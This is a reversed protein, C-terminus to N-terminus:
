WICHVVAGSNESTGRLGGPLHLLESAHSKCGQSKWSHAGQHQTVDQLSCCSTSLSSLAQHFIITCMWLMKPYSRKVVFLLMRKSHVSPFVWHQQLTTAAQAISGRRGPSRTPAAPPLCTTKCPPKVSRTVNSRQTYFTCSAESNPLFARRPQPLM